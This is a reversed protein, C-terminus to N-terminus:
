VQAPEPLIMLSVEICPINQVLLMIRYGVFADATNRSAGGIQPNLFVVSRRGLTSTLM